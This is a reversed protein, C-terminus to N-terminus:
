TFLIYGHRLDFIPLQRYNRIDFYSNGIILDFVLAEQHCGKGKMLSIFTSEKSASDIKVLHGGGESCVKEHVEIRARLSENAYFCTGNVLFYEKPCRVYGVLVSIFKDFNFLSKYFFNWQKAPIVGILVFTVPVNATYLRFKLLNACTYDFYHNSKELTQIACNM